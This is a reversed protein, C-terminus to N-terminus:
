GLRRVKRFLSDPVLPIQNQKGELQNHGLTKLFAPNLNRISLFTWSM